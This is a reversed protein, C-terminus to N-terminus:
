NRLKRGDELEGEGGSGGIKGRRGGQKGEGTIYGRVGLFKSCTKGIGNEAGREKQSASLIIM